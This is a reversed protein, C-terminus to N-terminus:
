TDLHLVKIPLEIFLDATLFLFPWGDGVAKAPGVCYTQSLHRWTKSRRLTIELTAQNLNQVALTLSPILQPLDPWDRKKEGHFRPFCHHIDGQQGPTSPDCVHPSLCFNNLIWSDDKLIHDLFFLSINFKCMLSRIWQNGYHTTHPPSQTVSIFQAFHKMLWIIHKWKLKFIWACGSDCIFQLM